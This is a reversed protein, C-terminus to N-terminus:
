ITQNKVHSVVGFGVSVSKGLGIDSPLFVNTSFALDFALLSKGKRTIPYVKELDTIELEVREQISWEIGKAFSLINGVLIKELMALRSALGAQSQYEQYNAENLPLWSKLRYHFKKDRVGVDFRNIKINEVQLSRSEQGIRILGMNNEFLRHIQESGAHISVLGAKGRISQYQILPYAYHFKQDNLHNHYLVHDRGVLDVVAGRFAPIESSKLPTDFTVRVVRVYPM